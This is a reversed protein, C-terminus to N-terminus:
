LAAKKGTWKNWFDFIGAKASKSKIKRLIEDMHFLASDYGADFIKNAQTFDFIGYPYAGEAEIFVDCQRAREKVNEWLMLSASREAIAYMGEMPQRTEKYANVNVGILVDCQRLLPEVPLNNLVGGDVYVDEGMKVPKFIVPIACSALVVTSLKGSEIIEFKGSHLNTVCVYLKRQLAEFSDEKLNSQLMKKLYSLDTLGDIPLGFQIAKYLRPKKVIELIAKPGLGEAYFAGIIAGMSSGSIMEPFIGNEELAKLVGAHAIGRAGGGSFVIGTKVQKM